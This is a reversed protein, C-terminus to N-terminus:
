THRVRSLSWPAAVSAMLPLLIPWLVSVATGVPMAAIRVDSAHLVALWAAAFAASILVAASLYRLTLAREAFGSWFLYATTVVMVTLLAWGTVVFISGVLGPPAVEAAEALALLILVLGYFLLLSSGIIFRRSYRAKIAALTAFTAVAFAVAVSSIVTQVVYTYGSMGAFVDAIRQRAKLLEPVADKGGEVLWSGWAGILSSSAWVSAGVAILAVLLCGTRVLVKLGVLQATDYPQTLEFPSAYTRGQRRRIGFANGSLFLLLVPAATFASFMVVPRVVWVPISIAFLVPILLALGLGIALIPLGSSKLEFWVQARVASSTPCPFRVLNVLWDPFGGAGAHRPATAIVEGRRQRAVGAVTLVFSVACVVSLLAIEASSFELYDPIGGGDKVLMFASLTIAISGIWQVVRSRTSWQICTYSFHFAVLLAAASFMPLSKGFMFELVAANLLYLAACTLADYAMAVGAIAVTAVPRPYLLYLPFGPKYGDMFRGGNLKSISLYFIGHQIMLIWTAFFAGNDLLLLAASGAVTGMALRQAAEIRTLRWNEWVMAAIPSRLIM